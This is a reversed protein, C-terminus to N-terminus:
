RSSGEHLRDLLDMAAFNRDQTALDYPTSGTRDRLDLNAGRSLLLSIIPLGGSFAAYHLPTMGSFRNQENVDIGRALLLSVVDAAGSGAAFHIPAKELNDVARIDAGAAVLLAAVGGKGFGVAVMLPTRGEADRAELDAGRQLLLTVMEPQDALAALYLPHSDVPDGKAKLDAGADILASAIAAHGKAVALHLATGHLELKDVPVASALLDRVRLLDGANVADYLGDVRAGLRL